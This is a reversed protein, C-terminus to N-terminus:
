FKFYFLTYNDILQYVTNKQKYGFPVYSRIFGCNELELLKKSFDGSSSIKTKNILEDRSFGKNSSSLAEVIKM